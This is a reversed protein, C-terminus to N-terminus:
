GIVELSSYGQGNRTLRIQTAIREKLSDVHSIVGITKSSEAQLKELTDLTQDLTEPDLTGFGEDIFLSNIEVNKSALDSLALAMSLSLLFTEGGSLTKISRRQGGMHQDIAVLSDDEEERPKDISYRDSLDKLRRNALMLLQTLSLDQAFDNFKKGTADGILHNLLEWRKTKKKVDKLSTEIHAIREQRDRDNRQKRRLEECEDRLSNLQIKIDELNKQLLEGSEQVDKQQLQALQEKLTILSAEIQGKQSTLKEREERLKLYDGDPLLRELADKIDKCNIALLKPNLFEETAQLESTKDELKSHFDRSMKALSEKQHQLSTWSKQLDLCDTEIDSGTYLQDLQTKINKGKALVEKLEAIIPIGAKIAKQKREEQEFQELIQLKNESSNCFEEWNEESPNLQSFQQKFGRKQDELHLQNKNLEKQLEISREKFHNLSTKFGSTKREEQELRNKSEILQAKLKDNKPPLHAAYPHEKAGCLPCPQGSHLEHRLDELRATLLENKQQLELKEVRERLVVAETESLQIQKPFEELKPHLSKEEEQAKKIAASLNELSLAKQQARRGLQLVQRLRNKEIEPHELDTGKLQERLEQLKKEGLSDLEKLKREETELDGNLLFPVERLESHFQNELNKYKDLKEKRQQQLQRVKRSFEQLNIEIKETEPETKLFSSIKKLCSQVGRLNEQEQKALSNMEQKIEACSKELIKWSRLDEAFIQVQEHRLIKELNANEYSKLAAAAAKQQREKEEVQRAQDTLSKKLQLQRELKELEKELPNCAASKEALNETLKKLAEEELLDKQLVNIERQQEEIETSVEKFKQYARIGVQRYIGTGTIKELLEAREKKEAKLLQAFEGQALLVAKIFQEYSLGILDENKAPVESRKVDLLRGTSLDSIEMWHDKLNGTRATSIEWKSTYKGTKTSYTIKAFAEKQNQTLVAGFKQIDNKSLTKNGPMRPIRNFLALSVVDLITSKGSGTPGTIAFLSSITFPAKSFDIEHEGKLSNINKFEIKLIKM